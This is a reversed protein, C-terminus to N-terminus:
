GSPSPSPQRFVRCRITLKRLFHNRKLLAKPPKLLLVNDLGVKDDPSSFDIGGRGVAAARPKRCGAMQCAAASRFWGKPGNGRAYHDTFIEEVLNGRM